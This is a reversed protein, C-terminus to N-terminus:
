RRVTITGSATSLQILPQGTGRVVTKREYTYRGRQFTEEDTFDFPCSIRGRDQRKVLVLRFNAGYDAVSLTVDGSASSAELGQAPLGPLDIRVDGSATSFEGAGTLECNRVVVNGSATSLALAGRCNIARVDGSATSFETGDAITLGSLTVDGSATNKLSVAVVSVETLDIDGSATDFSVGADVSMSSLEIDGSATDFGSGETLTVSGLTVDGSATDLRLRANIGQAELDGSATDFSILPPDGGPPLYIKWEVSGRSSRGQWHEVIRLTSGRQDVESRFADSPTVQQRLEVVGTAGEAPLLIVDGSTGDITIRTVGSFEWREAEQAEIPAALAFLLCAGLGARSLWKMAYEM